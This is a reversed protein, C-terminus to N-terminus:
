ARRRLLAVAALVVGIAGVVIGAIGLLRASSVDSETPLKAGSAEGVASL